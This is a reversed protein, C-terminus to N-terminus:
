AGIAKQSGETLIGEFDEAIAQLIEPDRIRQQICELLRTMVFRVNMAEVTKTSDWRGSMENFLKIAQIDGESAKKALAVHVQTQTEAFLKEGQEKMYTMFYPQKKWGRYTAPAVGLDLLKRTESRTDSINLLTNIVAIQRASLRENEHTYSIGRVDLAKKVVDKFLSNAIKEQPLGTMSQIISFAPFEGHKTWYEEVGVCIDWDDANMPELEASM